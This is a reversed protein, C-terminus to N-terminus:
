NQVRAAGHFIRVRGLEDTFLHDSRPTAIPSLPATASASSLAGLLFFARQLVLVLQPM